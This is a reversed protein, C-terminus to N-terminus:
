SAGKLLESLPFHVFIMSQLRKRGQGRSGGKEGGVGWQPPDPDIGRRPGSSGGEGVNMQAVAKTAM